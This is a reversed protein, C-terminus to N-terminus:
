EVNKDMSMKWEMYKRYFTAYLEIWSLGSDQYKCWKWLLPTWCLLSGYSLNLSLQTWFSFFWMLVAWYGEYFICNLTSIIGQHSQWYAMLSGLMCDVFLLLLWFVGWSQLFCLFSGLLGWSFIDQIWIWRADSWCITPLCFWPVRDMKPCMKKKLYVGYHPFELGHMCLILQFHLYNPLTYLKTQGKTQRGTWTAWSQDRPYYNTLIEHGQYRPSQWESIIRTNFFESMTFLHQLFMIQVNDDIYSM